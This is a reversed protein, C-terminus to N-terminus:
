VEYTKLFKRLKRHNGVMGTLLLNCIFVPSGNGIGRKEM